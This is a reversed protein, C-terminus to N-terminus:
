FPKDYQDLMKQIDEEPVHWDSYHDRDARGKIETLALGEGFRGFLRSVGEQHAAEVVGSLYDQPDMGHKDHISHAAARLHQGNDYLRKKVDSMPTLLLGPNDPSTEGDAIEPEVPPLDPVPPSKGDAQVNRGSLLNKIIIGLSVIAGAVGILTITLALWFPVQPMLTLGGVILAVSIGLVASANITPRDM